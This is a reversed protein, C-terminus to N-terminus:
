PKDPKSSNGLNTKVNVNALAKIDKMQTDLEIRELEELNQQMKKKHEDSTKDNDLSKHLTQKAKKFASSRDHDLLFKRIKYSFYGFVGASIVTLSPSLHILIDKVSSTEPLSNAFLVLITGSGAGVAGTTVKNSEKPSEM